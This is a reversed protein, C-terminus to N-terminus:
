IDALWGTLWVSLFYNSHELPALHDQYYLGTIHLTIEAIGRFKKNIKRNIKM